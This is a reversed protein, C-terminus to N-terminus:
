KFGIGLQLHIVEGNTIIACRKISWQIIKVTSRQVEFSIRSKDDSPTYDMFPGGGVTIV